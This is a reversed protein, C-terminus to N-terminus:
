THAIATPTLPFAGYMCALERQREGDRARAIGDTVPDASQPTHALCLIRASYRSLLFDHLSLSM